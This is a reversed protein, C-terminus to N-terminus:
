NGNIVNKHVHGQYWRGKEFMMIGEGSMTGNVWQGCYFLMGDFNPQKLTLEGYGNPINNGDINGIYNGNMMTLRIFNNSTGIDEKM